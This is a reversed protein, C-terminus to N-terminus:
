YCNIKEAGFIWKIYLESNIRNKLSNLNLDSMLLVTDDAYLITDFKSASALDNIYLLFLLPGPCSGQPVDITLKQRSSFRGSINTYQFRESLYSEFLNLDIGRIGFHNSLKWLLVRHNVTHFAKCLNLFICCSYLGEDINKIPKDPILSIAFNISSIPRFGFQKNNLLYKKELYSYLRTFNMKELIKDFQSLLSIPRYNTPNNKDGKKFVPIVEAVKLWNPFVGNSVYVNFLDSIIPAIIHKSYNIFKTEVDNYRVAKKNKLQDTTLLVETSTSPQLFFSSCHSTHPSVSNAHMPPEAISQSM